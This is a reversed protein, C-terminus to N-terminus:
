TLRSHFLPLCENKESVTPSVATYVIPITLVYLHSAKSIFYQGGVHNEVPINILSTVNYQKMVKAISISLM